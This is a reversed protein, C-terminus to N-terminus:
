KDWLTNVHSSQSFQKVWVVNPAGCQPRVHFKDPLDLGIPKRKLSSHKTFYVCLRFGQYGYLSLFFTPSEFRRPWQHNISNNKDRAMTTFEWLKPSWLLSLLFLSHYNNVKDFNPRRVLACLLLNSPGYPYLDYHSWQLEKFWAPLDKFVCHQTYQLM